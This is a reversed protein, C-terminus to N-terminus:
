VEISHIFIRSGLSKPDPSHHVHKGFQATFRRKESSSKQLVFLIDLAVDEEATVHVDWTIPSMVGTYMFVATSNSRPTTTYLPKKGNWRLLSRKNPCYMVFAVDLVEDVIQQDLIVRVQRGHRTQKTHVHCHRLDLMNRGSINYFRQVFSPGTPSNLVVPSMHPIYELSSNSSIASMVRSAMRSGGRPTFTVLTENKSDFIYEAFEGIINDGSTFSFPQILFFSFVIFAVYGFKKQYPLSGVTRAIASPLAALIFNICYLLVVSLPVIDALLSPSNMYAQTIPGIMLVFVFTPPLLSLCSFFLDVTPAISFWRSLAFLILQPALTLCLSISEGHNRLLFAAVSLIVIYLARWPTNTGLELGHVLSMFLFEFAIILAIYSFCSFGACSGPNMVSLAFGFLLCVGFMVALVGVFLFGQQMLSLTNARKNELLWQRRQYVAIAILLVPIAVIFCVCSQWFRKEVVVILPSFGFAFVEESVIQPKNKVIEAMLNGVFELDKGGSGGFDLETRHWKSNGMFGLRVGGTLTWLEADSRFLREIGSFMAIGWTKSLARVLQGSEKSQQLVAFPKKVGVSDFYLFNGDTNNTILIYRLAQECDHVGTIFFFALGGNLSLQQDSRSISDCMELASASYIATDHYGVGETGGDHKVGIYLPPSEGPGRFNALYQARECPVHNVGQRAALHAPIVALGLRPGVRAQPKRHRKQIKHFVNHIHHITYNHTNSGYTRLDGTFNQSHEMARRLNFGSDRVRKLPLTGSIVSDCLLIALFFFLNLVLLRRPSLM